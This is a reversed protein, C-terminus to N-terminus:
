PEFHAIYRSSFPVKRWQTKCPLATSHYIKFDMARMSIGPKSWSEDKLSTGVTFSGSTKWLNQPQCYGSSSKFFESDQPADHENNLTWQVELYPLLPLYQRSHNFVFYSYWFAVVFVCIKFSTLTFSKAIGSKRNGSLSCVSTCIKRPNLKVYSHM